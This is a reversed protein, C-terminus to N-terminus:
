TCFFLTKKKLQTKIVDVKFHLTSFSAQLPGVTTCHSQYCRPLAPLCTQDGAWGLPNLFRANSCGHSLCLNCSHSLDSGQGLCEMSGCPLWFLFFYSFVQDLILSYLGNHRMRGGKGKKTMNLRKFKVQLLIDEIQMYMNINKNFYIMSKITVCDASKKLQLFFHSAVPCTFLLCFSHIQYYNIRM